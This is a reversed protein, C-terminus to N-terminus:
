NKRFSRRIWRTKFREIVVLGERNLSEIKLIPMTYLQGKLVFLTLFVDQKVSFQGNYAYKFFNQFNLSRSFAFDDKITLTDSLGNQEYRSWRMAPFVFKSSDLEQSMELSNLTFSGVLLCSDVGQSSATTELFSILVFIIFLRM